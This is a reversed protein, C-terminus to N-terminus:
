ITCEKEIIYIFLFTKQELKNILRQFSLKERIMINLNLTKVEKHEFIKCHM